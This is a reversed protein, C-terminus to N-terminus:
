RPGGHGPNSPSYMLNFQYCGCTPCKGLNLDYNCKCNQCEKSIPEVSNEGGAAKEIDEDTLEIAKENIDKTM